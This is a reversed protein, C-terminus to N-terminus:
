HFLLPLKREKVMKSQFTEPDIKSKINGQWM